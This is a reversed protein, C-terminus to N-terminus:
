AHSNPHAEAKRKTSVRPKRRAYGRRREAESKIDHHPQCIAALNDDNHTGGEAVPIVHDVTTAQGQCVYCTHADLQLIRRRIAAWNSPQKYGSRM